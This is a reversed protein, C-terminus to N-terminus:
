GKFISKTGYGLFFYYSFIKIFCGLSCILIRYFSVHAKKKRLYRLLDGHFMYELVVCLPKMHTSAGILSIINKHFGISKMLNIEGLFEKEETDIARDLPSFISTPLTIQILLRCNIFLDSSFRYAFMPVLWYSVGMFFSVYFFSKM